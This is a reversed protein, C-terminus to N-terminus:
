HSELSAKTKDSKSVRLKIRKNKPGKIVLKDFALFHHLKGKSEGIKKGSLFVQITADDEVEIDYHGFDSGDLKAYMYANQTSSMWRGLNLLQYEPESFRLKVKKQSKSKAVIHVAKNPLELWGRGSSLTKKSKPDIIELKTNEDEAELIHYDFYINEYSAYMVGPNRSATWYKRLLEQRKITECSNRVREYGTKCSVALTKAIGWDCSVTKRGNLIDYSLTDKDNIKQGDKKCPLRDKVCSKGQPKYGHHCSIKVLRTKGRKCSVKVKGNAIFYDKSSGDTITRSNKVCHIASRKCSQESVHFAPDCSIKELYPSGADCGMHAKGNPIAIAESAGHFIVHGDKYCNAGVFSISIEGLDEELSWDLVGNEMAGEGVGHDISIASAIVGYRGEGSFHITMKTDAPIDSYEWKLFYQPPTSTIKSFRVLKVEGGAISFSEDLNNVTTGAVEKVAPASNESDQESKSDFGCSSSFLFGTVLVIISIFKRSSLM